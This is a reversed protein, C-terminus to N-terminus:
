RGYRFRMYEADPLNMVVDPNYGCLKLWRMEDMRDMRVMGYLASYDNAHAASLNKIAKTLEVPHKRAEDSLWVWAWGENNAELIGACGIVKGYEVFSRSPGSYKEVAERFVPAHVSDKEIYGPNIEDLHSSEFDVINM